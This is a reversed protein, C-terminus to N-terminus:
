PARLRAVYGGDHWAPVPLQYNEYEVEWDDERRKDGVKCRLFRHIVDPGEDLLISCVSYV